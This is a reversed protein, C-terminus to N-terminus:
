VFVEQVCQGRFLRWNNSGSSPVYLPISPVQCVHGKHLGSNFFDAAQNVYLFCKDTTGSV